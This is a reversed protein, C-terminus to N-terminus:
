KGGRGSNNRSVISGERISRNVYVYVIGDDKFSLDNETGAHGWGNLSKELAVAYLGVMLAILLGIVYKM